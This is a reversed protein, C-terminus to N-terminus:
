KVILFSTFCFTANFIYAEHGRAKFFNLYWEVPDIRMVGVLSEQKARIEEDSVGMSRKFDHYFKIPISSLSTKDTLILISGPNLGELISDLYEEKEHIFHLTWNAIVADFKEPIKPFTKSVFLTALSPDIKKTMAESCDVGYLNKFGRTKLFRLTEGTACGVDIIRADLGHLTEVITATEEIVEHYKPIHTPAYKSFSNAVSDDFQWAAM